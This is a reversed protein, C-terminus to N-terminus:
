CNFSASRVKFMIVLEIPFSVTLNPLTSDGSVAGVVVRTYLKMLLEPNHLTLTKLTKQSPNVPRTM